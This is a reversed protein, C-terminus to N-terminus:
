KLFEKLAELARLAKGDREISVIADCSEQIKDFLAAPKTDLLEFDFSVRFFSRTMSDVRTVVVSAAGSRKKFYDEYTRHLEKTDTIMSPITM